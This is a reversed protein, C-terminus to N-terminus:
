PSHLTRRYIIIELVTCQCNQQYIPIIYMTNLNKHATKKYNDDDGKISELLHPIESKHVLWLQTLYFLEAHFNNTM